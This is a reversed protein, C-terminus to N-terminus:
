HSTTLKSGRPMSSLLGMRQESQEEVEAFAVNTEVAAICM